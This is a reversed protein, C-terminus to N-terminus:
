IREKTNWARWNKDALIALVDGHCAKPKCFCVLTKDRLEPLYNRLATTAIIYKRYKEIVQERNGDRGIIYPNGWKSGRGIYVENSAGKKSAIHIVNIM